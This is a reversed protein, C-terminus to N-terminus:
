IVVYERIVDEARDFEANLLNQAVMKEKKFRVRKEIKKEFSDVKDQEKLKGLKDADKIKIDVVEKPQVKDDKEKIKEPEEVYEKEIEKIYNDETKSLFRNYFINGSEREIEFMHNFILKKTERDQSEFLALFGYRKSRKALKMGEIYKFIKYSYLRPNSADGITM